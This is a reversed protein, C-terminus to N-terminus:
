LTINLEMKKAKEQIELQTKVIILNLFNRSISFGFKDPYEAILKNVLTSKGSGSPGSIVVSKITPKRKCCFMKIFKTLKLKGM